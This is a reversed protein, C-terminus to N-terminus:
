GRGADDHDAARGPDRSRRRQRRRAGPAQHRLRRLGRAARRRAGPRGARARASVGPAEALVDDVGPRLRGRAQGDMREALEVAIALGLGAGHADNSSFFPEFIHPMTQRKIGLGADHVEVHVAGNRRAASVEIPTGEPTHVLANDILIRIVQAVREPDCEIEVGERPLDLTLPSGHRAAAPTFEGAVDSALAGVDTPEPRLELAGSELRSLDLLETALVRLREVQGRIQELFQARTEPDLDEDELLELFGGLSFVPTRLEHSATAIFQKRAFDLRELQQQMDAFAAALQGLEDDSDVRIRHSFDGAAVARAAVELRHVRLALARAVLFGALLALALAFAGAVLLQRRILAVNAQVDGLDSSFVAVSQIRGRGSRSRLPVAAQAQVGQDTPETATAVRDMRLAAQAIGQSDVLVEDQSQIPGASDVKAYLQDRDPRQFGLVTVRASSDAAAEAVEDALQKQTYRRGEGQLSRAERVAVASLDRLKQSRLSEGLRPAVYLYVLGIATLVILGFLFALRSRLSRLVV